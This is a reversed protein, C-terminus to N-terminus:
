TSEEFTVSGSIVPTNPVLIFAADIGKLFEEFEKENMKLEYGSNLSINVMTLSSARHEQTTVDKWEVIKLPSFGDITKGHLAFCIASVLAHAERRQDESKKMNVVLVALTASCDFKLINGSLSQKAIAQRVLVSVSPRVIADPSEDIDAKRLTPMATTLLQVIGLELAYADKVIM